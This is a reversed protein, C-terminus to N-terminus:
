QLETKADAEEEKSADHNTGEEQKKGGAVIVSAPRILIGSFTYGPKLVELIVGEEKESERLMVIEHMFPDYAGGCKVEELGQRRLTEMFNAYLLEIGKSLVKDSSKEAAISALYFEDVVPLLKRVFEAVGMTRASDIDKKVRKKYNDFEAALRLLQENEGEKRETEAPQQQANKADQQPAEGHSENKQDNEPM